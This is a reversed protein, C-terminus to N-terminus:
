SAALLVRGIEGRVQLNRTEQHQRYEKDAAILEPLKAVRPSYQPPLPKGDALTKLLEKEWKCGEDGTCRRGCNRHVEARVM